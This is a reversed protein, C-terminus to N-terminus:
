AQNLVGGLRVKGRKAKLFGSSSGNGWSRKCNRYNNQAPEAQLPKRAQPWKDPFEEPDPSDAPAIGM